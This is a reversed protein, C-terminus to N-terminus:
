TKVMPRYIAHDLWILGTPGKEIRVVSCRVQSITGRFFTFITVQMLTARLPREIKAANSTRWWRPRLIRLWRLPKEMRGASETFSARTQDRQNRSKAPECRVLRQLNYLAVLLLSSWCWSIVLLLLLMLLAVGWFYRQIPIPKYSLLRRGFLFIDVMLLLARALFLIDGDPKWTAGEEDTISDGKVFSDDDEFCKNMLRHWAMDNWTMGHETWIVMTDNKNDHRYFGTVSSYKNKHLLLSNKFQIELDCTLRDGSKFQSM